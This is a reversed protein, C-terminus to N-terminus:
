YKLKRREAIVDRPVGDRVIELAIKTGVVGRIKSVAGDIGLQTVPIGDVKTVLDGAVIGAAEAGGGAVVQEVLLKDAAGVLKIGIGVLELTPTEGDKLKTMGIALPGLQGGDVATMGSEIRPHYGGAGVTISVPGPPIGTLEFTGDERTVTGANAPQASAGGGHAERMIRAYALPAGSQADAVTGRLVAGQTVVLKADRTGATVVTLGSPAWGSASALLAYEGAPVRVEFKGGADVISRALVVEKVVGTNALVLLTYAPVAEDNANVVRGAIVEGPELVLSVDRAGGRIGVGLGPARGEVEAVLDYVGDDIGELVFTGDAASTAFAVSRVSTQAKGPLEEPVARVLVDPIPAGTADITRGRITQDRAAHDGLKIVLQRTLVVTQDLRAWGRQKGRVAEFVADDAAHFGFGGDKDTTWETALKEIAQEGAPTGLLRVKAGPVPAGSADVVRGRYDIAPFLFVTVGRVAQNPALFAHVDSHSLEPAFPLFGAAVVATLTFAGPAPPSLEFAGDKDTRITSATGSSTFTLEAGPVGNGTSWNIVRGSVIGGAAEVPELTPKGQGPPPPRDPEPRAQASGPAPATKVVATRAAAGKGAAATTDDRRRLVLVGVGALMVLAVILAIISSKRKM